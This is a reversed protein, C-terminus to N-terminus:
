FPREVCFVTFMIVGEGEYTNCLKANKVDYFAMCPVNETLNKYLRTTTVSAKIEAHTGEAILTVLRADLERTCHQECQNRFVSLQSRTTVRSDHNNKEAHGEQQSGASEAAKSGASEASCGGPGVDADASAPFSLVVHSDYAMRFPQKFRLIM